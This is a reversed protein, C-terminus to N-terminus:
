ISPMRGLVIQNYMRDSILDSASASIRSQDLAPYKALKVILAYYWLLIFLISSYTRSTTVRGLIIILNM